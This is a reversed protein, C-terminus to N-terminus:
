LSRYGHSYFRDKELAKALMYPLTGSKKSFMFAAYIVMDPKPTKILRTPQISDRTDCQAADGLVANTRCVAPRDEYIRCDGDEGLFLCKRQEFPIAYFKQSDNGAESLFNMSAEDIRMGSRVRHALLEAEDETVSVQTHCCASCGMKCPSLDKVLHHSFIEQNYEDINKHIFRARRLAQSFKRLSKLVKKVISVYESQDQFEEFSKKAIGPVNM